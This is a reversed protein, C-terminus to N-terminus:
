NLNLDNREKNAEMFTEWVCGCVGVCVAICLHSIYVRGSSKKIKMFWMSIQVSHQHCFSSLSECSACWHVAHTKADVHFGQKGNVLDLPFTVCYTYTHQINTTYIEQWEPTGPSHYISSVFVM